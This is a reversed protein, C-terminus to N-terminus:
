RFIGTVPWVAPFPTSSKMASGNRSAFASITGCSSRSSRLPELLDRNATGRWALEEELLAVAKDFNKMAKKMKPKKRKFEKGAKELLSSIKSTGAITRLPKVVLKLEEFM